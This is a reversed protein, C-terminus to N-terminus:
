GNCGRKLLEMFKPYKYLHLFLPLDHIEVKEVINKPRKIFSKFDELEHMISDRRDRFANSGAVKEFNLLKNKKCNIFISPNKFIILMEWDTSKLHYMSNQEFKLLKNKM